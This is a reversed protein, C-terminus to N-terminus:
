SLHAAGQQRHAPGLESYLKEVGEITWNGVESDKLALRVTASPILGMSERGKKWVVESMDADEDLMARFTAKATALAALFDSSTGDPEISGSL